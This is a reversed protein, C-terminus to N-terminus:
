PFMWISVMEADPPDGLGQPVKVQPYSTDQVQHWIEKGLGLRPSASLLAKKKEYNNNMFTYKRMECYHEFCYSLSLIGVAIENRIM